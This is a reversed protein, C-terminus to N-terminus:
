KKILADFKAVLSKINDETFQYQVDKFTRLKRKPYSAKIVTLNKYIEVEDDKFHSIVYKINGLRDIEIKGVKLLYSEMKNVNEKLYTEIELENM